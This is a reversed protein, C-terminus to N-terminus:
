IYYGVFVGVKLAAADQVGIETTHFAGADFVCAGLVGQYKVVNCGAVQMGPVRGSEGQLLVVCSYVVRTHATDEETDRHWTFRAAAHRQDLVHLSIVTYSDDWYANATAFREKLKKLILAEFAVVWQLSLAPSCITMDINNDSPPELLHSPWCERWQRWQLFATIYTRQGRDREEPDMGDMDAQTSNYNDFGALADGAKNLWLRRVTGDAGALGLHGEADRPLAHVRTFPEFLKMSEPPFKVRMIKQEGWSVVHRGWYLDNYQSAVKTDWVPNDNLKRQSTAATPGAALGSGSSLALLSDCSAKDQMQVVTRRLDDLEDRHQKQMKRSPRVEREHWANRCKKSCFLLRAHAHEQIYSNCPPTGHGFNKCPRSTHAFTVKNEDHAM